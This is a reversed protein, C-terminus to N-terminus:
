KGEYANCEYANWEEQTDFGWYQPEHESAIRTDFILSVAKLINDPDNGGWRIFDFVFGDDDIYVSLYNRGDFLYRITWRYNRGNTLCTITETTEGPQVHERIGFEELRGDFLQSAAIKKLPRYRTSM